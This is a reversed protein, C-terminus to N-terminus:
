EALGVHRVLEAFRPDARLADWRPEANLDPLPFEHEAVAQSLWHFAEEKQGFATYILAFSSPPIHERRARAQLEHLYAAAEARQGALAYACALEVVRRWDSRLIRSAEQFASIAEPYRGLQLYALGLPVQPLCNPDEPLTQAYAILAAYRRTLYLINGKEGKINLSLPDLEEALEVERLAEDFQRRSVLAYAMLSHAWALGPDLASARQYEEHMQQWNWEANYVLGLTLHALASRDDLRLAKQLALKAEPVAVRQDVPILWISSLQSRALGVWALAYNPDLTVAQTFHARARKVGDSTEQNFYYLGQLYEQYAEPNRSHYAAFPQGVEGCLKVRLSTVVSCAIEDQVALLDDLKHDFSSSTWLVRGDETSVLRVEVRVRDGSRRVSGELVSAVGLKDRVERLDVERQKFNFVSTRSIVKLGDLRALETIFTETLGDSFYDQAPDGSLNKLPLVAISPASVSTARKVPAPTARYILLGSGGLTVVACGLALAWARSAFLLKTLKMLRVHRHATIATEVAPKNEQVEEEEIVIKVSRLREYEVSAAGDEEVLPGIYRYGEAYHTEIFRPEESRDDLAKRIAGVCKRLTDDYVERGDWFADLLERRTVVRHRQEILYLLVQLPRPTLRVTQGARSLLRKDPDLSYDGLRYRKNIQVAM